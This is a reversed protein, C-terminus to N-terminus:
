KNRCLLPYRDRFSWHFCFWLSLCFYRPLFRLIQIATERSSWRNSLDRRGSNLAMCCWSERRRLLMLPLVTNRLFLEWESWDQKATLRKSFSPNEPGTTKDSANRAYTFVIPQGEKLGPFDDTLLAIADADNLTVEGDDNELLQVDHSSVGEVHVLRDKLFAVTHPPPITFIDIRGLSSDNEDFSTKSVAEGDDDYLRYYV